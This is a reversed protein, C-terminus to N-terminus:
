LNSILDLFEKASKEWSFKQIQKTKNYLFSNRLDKNILFEECAIAIEDPKDADILIGADGVVEPLSSNNSAVVDVGCKLAELPPIGFGEFFSPYVFLSALNYIYAKDENKVFGLCLIDNAFESQKIYERIRKSKWGPSGVIVLKYRGLEKDRRRRLLEYSKVLGIINKRPEFAGLFLIFNFPLKYKEKVELLKADNRDIIGMEDSVGNYIVKVKSEAVGYKEVIDNKTSDSVAIIKDARKALQRPNVFMHWLRRKWSFTEPFYEFSLDHITLILKTKRSIALFNINPAFFVDVGGLLKDIKPWRLYWLLFNFIKNPFSFKKLKVNPYNELWRLDIKPKRKWLNLFLVYENKKDREFIKQLLNVTYEEIGTRRGESLCRIDIGIRM